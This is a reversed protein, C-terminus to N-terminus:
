QTKRQNEETNLERFMENKHYPIFHIITQFGPCNVIFQQNPLSRHTGIISQRYDFLVHCCSLIYWKRPRNKIINGLIKMSIQGEKFDPEM